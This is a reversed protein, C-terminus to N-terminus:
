AFSEDSQPAVDTSANHGNKRALRLKRRRDFSLILAPLLLMNSMLAVMLTCSTMLGLAVTGQFTSVGFVLFGFFLILSTYVMSPITERLSLEVLQPIEWKRRKMEQRYKALFHISTDVSIGFVMSYVLVTSPKLPVGLFGMVGATFLLPFLNPVVSIVLIRIDKFLFMMIISILFIALSLSSILSGVLYQHGKLFILSSGTFIVKTSSGDVLSDVRLRLEDLLKGLRLTGVDAMNLSLRFVQRATDTLSSLTSDTTGRSRLLYPM